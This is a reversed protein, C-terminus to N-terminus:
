AKCIPVVNTSQNLHYIIHFNEAYLQQFNLHKTVTHTVFTVYQKLVCTFHKGINTQTTLNPYLRTHSTDVVIELIHTEHFCRM